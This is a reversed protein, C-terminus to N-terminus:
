GQLSSRRNFEFSRSYSCSEINHQNSNSIEVSQLSKFLPSTIKREGGGNQQHITGGHYQQMSSEPKTFTSSFICNVQLSGRIGHSNYSSINREKVVEGSFFNKEIFGGGRVGHEFCRNHSHNDSGM